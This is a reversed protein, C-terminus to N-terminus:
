HKYQLILSKFEKVLSLNKEHITFTKLNKKEKSKM